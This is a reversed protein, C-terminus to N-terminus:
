SAAAEGMELLLAAKLKHRARILRTGVTNKAIGLLAAIQDYSKGEITHLEYVRRFDESLTALARHVQEDQVRGWQPPADPPPAAVEIETIDSTAPTRKAKRCRDIFLNNMISVLWARLNGRDDYRDWARLAREYTDHLLDDADATNKCLRRAIGALVDEHVRVAAAFAHEGGGM